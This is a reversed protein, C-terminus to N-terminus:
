APTPIPIPPHPSSFVLHLCVFPLWKTLCIRKKLNEPMELNKKPPWKQFYLGGPPSGSVLGPNKSVWIEAFLWPKFVLQDITKLCFLTQQHQRANESKTPPDNRSIYVGRPAVPSSVRTKPFGIKVLFNPKSVYKTSKRLSKQSFSNSFQNLPM